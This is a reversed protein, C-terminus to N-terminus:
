SLHAALDRRNSRLRPVAVGPLRRAAAKRPDAPLQPTPSLAAPGPDRSPRRRRLAGPCDLDREGARGLAPDLERQGLVPLLPSRPAGAGGAAGAADRAPSTRRVLLLLLLLRRNRLPTGARGPPGCDGPGPSRLVRPRRALTA